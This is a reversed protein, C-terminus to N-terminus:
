QAYQCFSAFALAKSMLRMSASASRDQTATRGAGALSQALPSSAMRLSGIRARQRRQARGMDPVTRMDRSPCIPLLKGATRVPM